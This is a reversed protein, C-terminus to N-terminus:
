EAGTHRQQQDRVALARVLLGLERFAAPTVLINHGLGPEITLQVDVGHLQLAQAYRRSDQPIAVDDDAGVLMRVITGPRVTTVLSLPLLSPNPGSWIPLWSQARKRARFAEPDCGCGVLLAADVLDPHRGLVDAVIAAGGSHGVLVVARAQYAAALQRTASAVADIVDPTYNDGTAHGMDGSSRDGSPDRYGPRLLGAAVVDADNWDAGLAARLSASRQPAEPWGVTMTKAVLYQYDPRPDPLDGHLVLVLLPHNSVDDRAFVQAKLRGQAVDLWRTTGGSPATTAPACATLGCLALLVPASRLTWQMDIM